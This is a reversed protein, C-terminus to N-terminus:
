KELRDELERLIGLAEKIDSNVEEVGRAEQPAPEGQVNENVSSILGLRKQIKEEQALKYLVAKHSIGAFRLSIENNTINRSDLVKILAGAERNIDVSPRHLGTWEANLWAGRKLWEKPNFIVQLFGPINLIGILCAQIFFESYIIQCIDKGNKFVRYDLYIDFENNAQRSASYSNKFQLLVIEPPIELYWAIGSIIGTEFANYNINPRQTGFSVPEEGPALNDFITGPTLFINEQGGTIERPQIPEGAAAKQQRNFKDMPGANGPKSKADRKIFMPLMANIVAARVEASEYVDLDKLAHLVCALLPIGRVNSLLKEGGYIMWSIVRGSKEGVCPIRTEKYETGDWEKIWYAVHRDQKDLEVGHRIRNGPKPKGDMPSRIFNGNIWDWCPLGTKENIRSVIIGDGCLISELRVQSQFEGFTLEEKYDFVNYDGAYINFATQIKGAFEVALNEREEEDKDPWIIDAVPTPDVTMGKHIENRIIRKIIGQARHNEYFLQLSRRRLTWYDVGMDFLVNRTSGFGGPFKDGDFLDQAIDRVYYMLADDDNQIKDARTNEIQPAEAPKKKLFDFFSM